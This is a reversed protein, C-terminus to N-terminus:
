PCPDIFMEAKVVQDLRISWLTAQISKMEMPQVSWDSPELGLDFIREWSKMMKERLLRMEPTNISWNKLDHYSYGYKKYEDDFEEDEQENLSLYGHNLPIHWLDFDSLLMDKEDVELTLRIIRRGPDGHRSRMDPKKRKGEWQYWAWIPYKVGPTPNGIRIRMQEAMWDYTFCWYDLMEIFNEAVVLEGMNVLQEYVQYDQITWLRM